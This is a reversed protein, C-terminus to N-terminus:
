EFTNEFNNNFFNILKQIYVRYDFFMEATYRARIRLSKYEDDSMMIIRDFGECVAQSTNSKLLIGNNMDQLYLSIDGTFNTIVPTGVAMCEALKTPFGADSSRRCPRVFILYDCNAYVFPIQEQPIRDHIVVCEKVADLLSTDGGINTLIQSKSPGYVDFTIKNRYKNDSALADLIPRMLEKTGGLSGAFVIHIRDDCKNFDSCHINQVDLITPIRISSVGLSNYHDNLLRSISVIGDPHFYGNRCLLEAKLFRIDAYRFKYTSVDMWECQEIYHRVKHVRLIKQLRIFMGSSATMFVFDVKNASLYNDCEKIFKSNGFFSEMSNGATSSVVQYSIEEISYIKGPVVDKDTTHCTIVHVLYGADRLLRCFNMMRSSIAVGNPFYSSVLVLARKM